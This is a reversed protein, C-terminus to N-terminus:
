KKQNLRREVDLLKKSADKNRTDFRDPIMELVVRLERSAEDWQGLNIAREVKFNQDQYQKEIEQKLDRIMSLSEAYFDPKPDVTELEKEVALFTKLANYLNDRKIEREDYLKKGNLYSERAMEVLKDTAYPLAWLGVENQVFVELARTFDELNEPLVRNVVQTRHTRAGITISLDWSQLVDPHIGRYEREVGFFGSDQAQKALAKLAEPDVDRKEKQIHRNEAINDVQVALSRDKRIQVRYVFVNSVTAEVKEYEIELTKPLEFPPVPRTGTGGKLFKPIWVVAAAVIVLLGIITLPLTGIKRQPEGKPQFLGLDVAGGPTPAAPAPSAGGQGPAPTPASAAAATLGNHIVKLVTGGITLTDGAQLPAETVPKGNVETANSSGLDTTWLQGDSKFFFRCQHRSMMPDSLAVDNKSSRGVRAGEPPITLKKGKDPGHEVILHVVEAM